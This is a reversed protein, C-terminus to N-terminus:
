TGTSARARQLIGSATPIKPLLAQSLDVGAGAASLTDAASCPSTRYRRPDDGTGDDYHEFRGHGRESLRVHRAGPTPFVTRFWRGALGPDQSPGRSSQSFRVLRR